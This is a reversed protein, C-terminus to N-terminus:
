DFIKSKKFKKYFIPISYLIFSYETYRMREQEWSSGFFSIIMLYFYFMLNIMIFIDILNRNKNLISKTFFMFYIFYITSFFLFVLIKFAENKNLIEIFNFNERWGMPKLLYDISLHGHVSLFRNFKEQILISLNDNIHKVIKKSCYKSKYLFGIDNFAGNNLLPYNLFKIKKNVSYDFDNLLPHDVNELGLSKLKYILNYKKIDSKEFSCTPWEKRDYGLAQSANIGTWTSSAFFNFYIKNKIAPFNSIIFFILFLYISKTNIKPFKKGLIIFFIILLFINTYASWTLLLFSSFIYIKVEYKLKYNNYLKLLYYKTAFINLCTFHAYSVFNEYFIISPALVIFFLITFFIITRKIKLLELTKLSFFIIFISSIINILLIYYSVYISNVGLFKVGIGIITNWLPPQSHFYFISKLFEKNLLSINIHQMLGNVWEPDPRIESSFVIFRVLLYLIILSLLFYKKKLYLNLSNEIKM